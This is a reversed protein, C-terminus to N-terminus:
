RGKVPISNAMISIELIYLPLDTQTGIKTDSSDSEEWRWELVFVDTGGAELLQEKLTIESAPVLGEGSQYEGSDVSMLRYKLPLKPVNMDSDVLELTYNISLSELNLLRFTYNGKAGPAIVTQNDVKFVGREPNGSFIGVLTSQEWIDGTDLSSVQLGPLEIATGEKPSLKIIDIIKGTYLEANGIRGLVYGATCSTVSLLLLILILLLPLRKRYKDAKQKEM